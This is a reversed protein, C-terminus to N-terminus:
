GKVQKLLEDYHKQNSSYAAHLLATVWDDLQEKEGPSLEDLLEEIESVQYIKMARLAPLKSIIVKRQAASITFTTPHSGVQDLDSTQSSAAPLEFSFTTGVGVKSNIFIEGGHAEVALKCFTLGLGTSGVGGSEKPDHQEFSGFLRDLEDTPIGKGFDQVAIKIKGSAEKASIVIEANVDSYKIANTLLNVLTRSLMQEDAKAACNESAKLNLKINKKSLLPRVQETIKQFLVNLNVRTLNLKVETSEFKHVDLMNNVLHLMQSAMQKTSPIEAENNIIVSLPNKLDHAIMGTVAEKFNAIAELEKRKSEKRGLLLRAVLLSVVLVALVTIALLAIKLNALKERSEFDSIEENQKLVEKEIEATKFRSQHYAYTNATSARYTSDKATIYSQLYKNAKKFDGQEWYLDALLKEAALRHESTKSGLAYDLYTSAYRIANTIRGIKKEYTAKALTSTGEFYEGGIKSELKELSDLQVKAMTLDDRKLYYEALLARVLYENRVKEDNDPVKSLAVMASDLYIDAVDFEGKQIWGSAVGGYLLILPSFANQEKCLAILKTRKKNAEEDLGNKEYINSLENGVYLTYTFDNLRVYFTYAQEFGQVAEAFNGSNSQAQAAFFFADAAFISDGLAIFLAASEDYDSIAKPYDLKSFYVGGRKLLLHAISSQKLFHDQYSMMSDILDLAGEENGKYIYQQIIFRSKSAALDFEKLLIALNVYERLYTIQSPHKVRALHRTLTDLAGLLAISDSESELENFSAKNLLNLALRDKNDGLLSDAESLLNEVASEQPNAYLMGQISLLAIVLLKFYINQITRIVNL